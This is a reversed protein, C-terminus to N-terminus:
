HLTRAPEAEGLSLARPLERPTDSSRQMAELSMILSKLKARYAADRGAARAKLSKIVKDLTVTDVFLVAMICRQKAFQLLKDSPITRDHLISCIYAVRRM